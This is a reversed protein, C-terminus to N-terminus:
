HKSNMAPRLSKTAYLMMSAAAPNDNIVVVFADLTGESYKVWKKNGTSKKLDLL